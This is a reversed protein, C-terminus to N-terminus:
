DKAIQTPMIVVNLCLRVLLLGSAALDVETFLNGCPWLKIWDLANVTTHVHSFLFVCFFCLHAIAWYSTNHGTRFHARPTPPLFHSSMSFDVLGEHGTSFSCTSELVRVSTRMEPASWEPLLWVEIGGLCVEKGSRSDTSIHTQGAGPFLYVAM